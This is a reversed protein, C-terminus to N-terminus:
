NITIHRAIKWLSQTSHKSNDEKQTSNDICKAVVSSTQIKDVNYDLIEPRLKKERERERNTCHLIQSAIQM